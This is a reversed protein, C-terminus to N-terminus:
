AKGRSRGAARRPRLRPPLAPPRPRPLAASVDGDPRPSGAVLRLPIEGAWCSAARDSELDIPPGRRAKASAEATPIAIVLTAGLEADSPPRVQRGRGPLVHELIAALAALKEARVKVERPRGFVVVSRYNLSHRFASRALVLGDLLTVTVCVPAGAALAKLLRGARSGHLLLREGVRAYNMPLVCPEGGVCFGVHCVLGEDLIADIVARDYSGRGPQQRVQTRPTPKM